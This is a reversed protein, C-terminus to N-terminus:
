VLSRCARKKKKGLHPNKTEAEINAMTNRHQKSDLHDFWNGNCYPWRMNIMGGNKGKAISCAGCTIHLGGEHLKTAQPSNLVDYCWSTKRKKNGSPVPASCLPSSKKSSSNLACSSTTTATTTATVPAVPVKTVSSGAGVALTSAVISENVSGIPPSM